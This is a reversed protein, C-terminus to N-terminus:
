SHKKSFIFLQCIPDQAFEKYKPRQQILIEDPLLGDSIECYLGAKKAANIYMNNSRVIDAMIGTDGPRTVLVVYEDPSREEIEITYDYRKQKFYAYDPAILYVHGREDLLQAIRSFAIELDAIHPVAMISIITKFTQDPQYQELTSEILTIEPYLKNGMQINSVSPEIGIITKAGLKKAEHLLWGSGAGIDLVSTEQWNQIHPLLKRWFFSRTPSELGADKTWDIAPLDYQHPNIATDFLSM